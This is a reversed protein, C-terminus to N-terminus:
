PLEVGTFGSGVPPHNRDRESIVAVPLPVALAQMLTDIPAMATM